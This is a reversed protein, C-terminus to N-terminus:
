ARGRHFVWAEASQAGKYGSEITREAEREPQGVSLAADKLAASCEGWTLAGTACIRALQYAALNLTDNHTDPASHAVMSVFRNFLQRAEPANAGYATAARQRYTPSAPQLTPKELILRLLREPLVGPQRGGRHPSPNGWQYRDGSPHVSPDAMVYGGDGRIDLGPLIGVRNGIVANNPYRFYVHFGKGTKAYLPFTWDSGIFERFSQKGAVGDIDLVIVGSIRGTVIALNLAPRKTFWSEIEDYDPLRKQYIEWSARHEQYGELAPYYPKKGRPQCPIVSFGLNRYALAASLIDNM